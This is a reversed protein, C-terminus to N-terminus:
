VNDFGYSADDAPLYDTADIDIALLDRIVNAYEARNLRHLATRGPNPRALAAKDISTEIYNALGDYGAKDPRPMGLPPMAGTRLKKIVKEWTESDPAVNALDLKDLALGGIKTKANHCTVCYKDVLAREPTQASLFGAALLSAPLAIKVEEMM